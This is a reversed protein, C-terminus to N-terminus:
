PKHGSRPAVQSSQHLRTQLFVKAQVMSALCGKLALIWAMAFLEYPSVEADSPAVSHGSDICLPSGLVWIRKQRGFGAAIAFQKQFQLTEPFIWEVGSRAVVESPKM